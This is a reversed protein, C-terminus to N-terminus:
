PFRGDHVEDITEVIHICAANSKIAFVDTVVVQVAQPALDPNDQLIRDQKTSRDSVIDAKTHWIGTLFHDFCSGLCSMNM